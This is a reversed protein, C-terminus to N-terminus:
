ILLDPDLPATEDFEVDSGTSIGLFLALTLFFEGRPELAIGAPFQYHLTQGDVHGSLLNGRVQVNTVTVM